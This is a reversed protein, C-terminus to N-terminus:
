PDPRDSPVPVPFLLPPWPGTAGAQVKNCFTRYGFIRQVDLNIDRGPLATACLGFRLADM